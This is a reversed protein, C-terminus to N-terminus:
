GHGLQRPAPLFTQPQYAGLMAELSGGEPTLHSHAESTEELNASFQATPFSPGVGYHLATKSVKRYVKVDSKCNQEYIPSSLIYLPLVPSSPGPLSSSARARRTPACHSDRSAPM